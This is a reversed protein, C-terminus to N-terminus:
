NNANNDGSNGPDIDFRRRSEARKGGINKVCTGSRRLLREGGNGIGANACKTAALLRADQGVALGNDHGKAWAGSAALLTSAAFILTIKKM